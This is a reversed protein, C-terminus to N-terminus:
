YEPKVSLTKSYYLDITSTGKYWKYYKGSSTVTVASNSYFVSGSGSHYWKSNWSNM